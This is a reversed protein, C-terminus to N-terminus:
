AAIAEEDPAPELGDAPESPEPESVAAILETTEPIGALGRVRNVVQLDESSLAPKDLLPAIARLLEVKGQEEQEPVPFSGYNEQPGFRWDILPRCLQELLGEKVQNMFSAIAKSALALHGSNLGSDGTGTVGTSMTTEPILQGIGVIRELYRLAEFFFQGANAGSMNQLAQIENRIDTVVYSRNELNELQSVVQDGIPIRMEEGTASDVMPNGSADTLVIYERTPVKAVIIPTALRQGAIVMEAALLKWAEWAAVIRRNEAVGYPDRGPALYPLNVVHVGKEYPIDQQVGGAPSYRIGDIKEATGQFRYRRPDVAILTDLMWEMGRQTVSFESFSFGIAQALFMEAVSTNLSGRMQEFNKRMWKQVRGRDHTFDGLMSLGLLVKIQFYAGAIPHSVLLDLYKDIPNPDLSSIQTSILQNVFREVGLSLQGAVPDKLYQSSPM